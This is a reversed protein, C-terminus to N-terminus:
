VKVLGSIINTRQMDHGYEKSNVRKIASWTYKSSSNAKIDKTSQQANVSHILLELNYGIKNVDIPMGHDGEIEELAVM